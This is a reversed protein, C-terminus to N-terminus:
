EGMGAPWASVTGGPLAARTGLRAGDCAPVGALLVTAAAIAALARLVRLLRAPRLLRRFFTKTIVWAAEPVVEKEPPKRDKVCERYRRSQQNRTM